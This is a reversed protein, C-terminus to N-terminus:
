ENEGTNNVSSTPLEKNNTIFGHLSLSVKLSIISTRVGGETRYSSSYQYQMETTQVTCINHLTTLSRNKSLNVNKTLLKM